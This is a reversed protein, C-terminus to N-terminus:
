QGISRNVEELEYKETIEDILSPIMEPTVDMRGLNSLMGTYEFFRMFAASVILDPVTTAFTEFEGIGKQALLLIDVFGKALEQVSLQYKTGYMFTWSVEDGGDSVTVTHGINLRATVEFVGASLRIKTRSIKSNQANPM